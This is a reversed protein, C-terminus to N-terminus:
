AFSKRLRTRGKAKRLATNLESEDIVFTLAREITETESKAGLARQARSLKHQNLQLHKHRIKAPTMPQAM